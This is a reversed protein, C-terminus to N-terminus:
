RPLSVAGRNDGGAGRRDGLGPLYGLRWDIGPEDLRSGLDFTPDGAVILRVGLTRAVAIADDLQKYAQILGLFLLTPSGDRYTPHGPFVPHPIVVVRDAPVGVEDVLRTRGAESHVVVRAFRTYLRRWLEPKSATRRPLIDHATMVSPRDFRLLHLDAQPLPAWQVHLVDCPISRLRALGAIHEAGRLPLRLRSRRFLRSSAPYFLERRVYGVPTPAEGFRFRSTVLEIEVGRSALATALHHDYPLTFAAPDVLVVRM